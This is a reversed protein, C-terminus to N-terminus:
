PKVCVFLLNSNGLRMCADKYEVQNKPNLMDVYFKPPDRYTEEDVLQKCSVFGAKYFIEVLDHYSYFALHGGHYVERDGSTHPFIGRKLLSEQHEFYQINPTNIYVVAGSKAVKFCERAFNEPDIIHEIFDLATIVDFSEKYFPLGEKDVDAVSIVNGKKQAAELNSASIDLTHRNMFGVDRLASGLDGIGGGVDLLNKDKLNLTRLFKVCKDVRGNGGNYPEYDKPKLKRTAISDYLGQKDM